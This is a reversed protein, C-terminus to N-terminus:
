ETDEDDESDYAEETFKVRLLETHRIDFFECLYSMLIARDSQPLLVGIDKYLQRIQNLGIGEYQPIILSCIGGIIESYGSTKIFSILDLIIAAGLKKPATKVLQVLIKATDAHGKLHQDILTVYEAQTPADIHVFAFRRMFAYSLMFLSNKDYTNMTALIRWNRGICYSATKEDYYSGLTEVHRISIPKEGVPTLAKYQLEVDMGSLVTFFHGFAKDVEARNIEDIILWKNERISKLFIGEQFQLRGDKDPMYGGITDFTTWDSIATTLFYGNVFRKRGAEHCAREALTTKGTGPPGTFIIHKGMNILIGTNVIPNSTMVFGDVITNVDPEYKDSYDDPQVCNAEEEENPSRPPLENFDFEMPVLKVTCGKIRTMLDNGVSAELDQEIVPSLELMARMLAIANKEAIRSIAQNPEWKTIPGIGIIDYTDSYPKLDGRKIPTDLLLKVDIKIKYNKGKYGEDYPATSITGMGVLGTDWKVWAQGKDGGLVIFVLQGVHLGEKLINLGDIEINQERNLIKQVQEASKTKISFFPHGETQAENLIQDVTAQLEKISTDKYKLYIEYLYKQQQELLRQHWSERGNSDFVSAFKDKDHRLTSKKVNYKESLLSLAPFYKGKYRENNSPLRAFYLCVLALKEKTDIQVIDIPM